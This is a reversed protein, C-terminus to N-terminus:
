LDMAKSSRFDEFIFRSRIQLWSRSFHNEADFGDTYIGDIDIDALATVAISCKRKCRPKIRSTGDLRNPWLHSRDFGTVANITVSGDATGIGFLNKAFFGLNMM